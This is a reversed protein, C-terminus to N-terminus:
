LGICQAVSASGMSDEGFSETDIESGRPESDSHGSPAALDHDVFRRDDRERGLFVGHQRGAAIGGVHNTARGLRDATMLGM